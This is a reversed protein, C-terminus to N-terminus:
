SFLCSESWYHKFFYKIGKQRVLRSGNRVFRSVEGTAEKAETWEKQIASKVKSMRACARSDWAASLNISSRRAGSAGRARDVIAVRRRPRSSSFAFLPSHRSLLLARCQKQQENPLASARGCRQRSRATDNSSRACVRRPAHGVFTRWDFSRTLPERRPVAQNCSVSKEQSEVM